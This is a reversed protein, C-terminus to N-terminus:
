TNLMLNNTDGWCTLPHAHKGECAEQHIAIRDPFTPMTILKQNQTTPRFFHIVCMVIIVLNGRNFGHVAGLM